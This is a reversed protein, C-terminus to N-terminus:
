PPPSTDSCSPPIISCTAHRIHVNNNMGDTIDWFYLILIIKKCNIVSADSQPYCSSCSCCVGLFFILVEICVKNIPKSPGPSVNGSLSGHLTCLIEEPPHDKFLIDLNNDHDSVQKFTSLYAQCNKIIFVIERDSAKAKFSM